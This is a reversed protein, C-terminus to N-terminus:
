RPYATLTDVSGAVGWGMRLGDTEPNREVSGFLLVFGGGHQGEWPKEGRLIPNASYEEAQHVNRRVAEMQEIVYDDIFLQRHKGIRVPGAPPQPAPKSGAPPPMDPLSFMGAHTWRISDIQWETHHPPDGNGGSTFAFSNEAEIELPGLVASGTKGAADVFQVVGVGGNTPILYRVTIFDGAFDFGLANTSGPFGLNEIGETRFRAGYVHKGTAVRLGAASGPGAGVTVKLRAEVTTGPGAAANWLKNGAASDPTGILYRRRNADEDRYKLVGPPSIEVTPPTGQTVETFSGSLGDPGKVAGPETPLVDAEYAAQWQVKEEGGVAPPTLLLLLLLLAPALRYTRLM